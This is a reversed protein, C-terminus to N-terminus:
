KKKIIKKIEAEEEALVAEVAQARDETDDVLWRLKPIRRIVLNKKLDGAIAGSKQRLKKLVTGQWGSPLVSVGVTAYKLDQSCKVYVVTVLANPLELERNVAAALVPQLAENIKGPKAM